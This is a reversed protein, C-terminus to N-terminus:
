GFVLLDFYKKHITNVHLPHYLQRLFHHRRLIRCMGAASSCCPDSTMESRHVRAALQLPLVRVLNEDRQILCGM